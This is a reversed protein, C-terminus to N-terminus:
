ILYQVYFIIKSTRYVNLQLQQWMTPPVAKYMDAFAHEEKVRLRSLIFDILKRLLDPDNKKAQGIITVRIKYIADGYGALLM